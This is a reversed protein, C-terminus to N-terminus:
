ERIAKTGQRDSGDNEYRNEREVGELNGYCHPVIPCVDFDNWQGKERDREKV